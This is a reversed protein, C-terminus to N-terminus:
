NHMPHFYEGNEGKEFKGWILHNCKISTDCYLEFGAESAKICFYIDDATRINEPLDLLGYRIKRFVQRKILMCGASPIKVRYIKNSNAEDITLHRRLDECSKVIPPFKVKQKIVEYEEPTIHCYVVPRYKPKGDIIFQNYYLGSIIDKKSSLLKQIINKPAIVDSDLMLIYEYNNQLAYDIIMNRSSILRLKNKIHATKDKIFKIKYNKYKSTIKDFFIEEKSNDIILIDYNDYQIELVAKVFDDFCYEMKDYVPTAVLIKPNDM